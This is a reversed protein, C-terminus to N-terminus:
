YKRFRQYRHECLERSDMSGYKSLFQDIQSRLAEAVDEMQDKSFHAPEEFVREVIGAKKLDAATLKMSDAAEKARKSDKWLISSFGEPSLISYVANEMMWVEDAVALALAGGSGGEGILISLIPTKLSSMEFLNRAIAEGQGHEEAEIGCAAGPTDVFCLIPRHFKEAQRMLRLAKRYGQPSCMGFNENKEQAIVTVPQGNFFGIGATVAKDDTMMRDGHFEYFQDILANIYDYGIPRKKDRSFCVRDWASYKKQINEEAAKDNEIETKEAFSGVKLDASVSHLHLLDTLVKKQEHREVIRDVFGHELLFEARQFGAPLRQGTTQEIVRPGAFGILAKPEALIIDAEMAFSATVGGTTPDTLVSIYLLGEDSHRKLAASTKAMQMLSIIGEQMRAGGSCTFIIIPLKKKTAEEAARTIKEGVAEGMSAMMFRGDMVCLVCPEGGITCQGTVVAEKLRTKLRAAAIKEEYGEFEMPNKGVLDQDWELFSGEDAIRAIREQARIRFYGNCSPCVYFNKRVDEAVIAKKCMSCKCLLGEPVEPKKRIGAFPRVLTKKFVHDLNM